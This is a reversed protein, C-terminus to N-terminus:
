MFNDGFDTDTDVSEKEILALLEKSTWCGSLTQTRPFNNDVLYQFQKEDPNFGYYPNGNLNEVRGDDHVALYENKRNDFGEDVYVELRWGKYQISM